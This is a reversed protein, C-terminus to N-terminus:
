FDQSDYVAKSIKSIVEKIAQDFEETQEEVPPLSLDLNYVQNAWNVFDTLAWFAEPPADGGWSSLLTGIFTELLKEQEM